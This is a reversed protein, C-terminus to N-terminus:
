KCGHSTINFFIFGRFIKDLADQVQEPTLNEDKNLREIASKIRDYLLVETKKRREKMLESQTKYEYGMAVLQELAPLESKEGEDGPRIEFNL